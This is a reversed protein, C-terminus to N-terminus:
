NFHDFTEAIYKFGKRRLDQFSYIPLAARNKALYIAPIINSTLVLSKFTYADPSDVYKILQKNHEIVWNHRNLHKLIHGGQGDQGIYSDLETKMEHIVRASATNKCEIAYIVKLNDDIVMVDIDGYNIDAVLHGHIDIKVEYDIVRLDTNQKFWDFVKKRYRKGNREVFYSIVNTEISGKEAVRLKGSDILNTFQMYSRFTHRFGWHYTAQNDGPYTVKLLPRRVYSLARNYRWPLIDKDDFGKPAKSVSKRKSLTM